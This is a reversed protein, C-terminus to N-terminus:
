VPGTVELLDVIASPQTQVGLRSFAIRLRKTAERRTRGGKIIVKDGVRGQYVNDQCFKRKLKSM